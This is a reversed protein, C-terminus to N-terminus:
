TTIFQDNRSWIAVKWIITDITQSRYDCRNPSRDSVFSEYRNSEWWFRRCSLIICLHKGQRTPRCSLFVDHPLVPYSSVMIKTRHQSRALHFRHAVPCIQIFVAAKHLNRVLVIQAFIPLNERVQTTTNKNRTNAIKNHVLHYKCQQIM